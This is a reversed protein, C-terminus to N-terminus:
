ERDLVLDVVWCGRAHPGPNRCHALIEASDCGADQLADALIPMASFDQSEDMQRALALATTTRWASSFAIPSCPESGAGPRSCVHPEGEEFTMFVAVEAGVERFWSAVSEAERRMQGPVLLVPGRDLLAKGDAPSLDFYRRLRSIVALRNPGPRLLQVRWCVFEAL